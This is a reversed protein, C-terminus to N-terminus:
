GNVVEKKNQKTKNSMRIKWKEILQSVFDTKIAHIAGARTLGVSGFQKLLDSCQRDISDEILYREKLAREKANQPSTIVRKRYEETQFRSALSPNARNETRNAKKSWRSINPRQGKSTYGNSNGGKRKAM